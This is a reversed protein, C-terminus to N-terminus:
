DFKDIPIIMGSISRENESMIVKVRALLAVINSLLPVNTYAGIFAIRLLVITPATAPVGPVFGVFQDIALVKFPSVFSITPVPVVFPM